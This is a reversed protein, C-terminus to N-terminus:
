VAPLRSSALGAQCSRWKWLLVEEQLHHLAWWWASGWFCSRYEKKINDISFDGESSQREREREWRWGFQIMSISFIPFTRPLQPVKLFHVFETSEPRLITISSCFHFPIVYIYIYIYLWAYVTIIVTNMMFGSLKPSDTGWFAAWDASTGPRLSFACLSPLTTHRRPVASTTLLGAFQVSIAGTGFSNWRVPSLTVSFNMTM